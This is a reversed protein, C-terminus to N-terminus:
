IFSNKNLRGICNRPGASFALFSFAHRKKIEEPKFRDPDFVEPNPFIHALRQTTFPSIIVDSGAPLIHKGVKIPEGLKRLLVPISPCLRLTEKICQELYRMEQLDCVDSLRDSKDFITNLEEFVRRQIDTHKALFYLCMSVNTAVSEQGALMFTCVENVIDDDTFEPHEETIDLMRELLCTRGKKYIGNKREEVRTEIIKRTFSDLNQKQKTENRATNTLNYICDFLLWPKVIRDQTVVKGQRYPSEKYTEEKLSQQIPLGLIAENLIDLISNNILTTINIYQTNELAYQLKNILSAASDAFTDTFTELININFSPQLLRRHLRWKEGSSTILGNGLFNHMLSYFYTKETNKNTGLLNQLDKPELIVFTPVLSIWVRYIPGYNRYANVGLDMLAESDTALLGNGIIPLAPPGPLSFALRIRKFWNSICLIYLVGIGLLVTAYLWLEVNYNRGFAYLKM